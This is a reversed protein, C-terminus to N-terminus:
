GIMLQHEIRHQFYMDRVVKRLIDDHKAPRSELWDPLNLIPLSPVKFSALSRHEEVQEVDLEDVVWKCGVVPV